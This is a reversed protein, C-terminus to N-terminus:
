ELNLAARALTIRVTPQHLHCIFPGIGQFKLGSVREFRFGVVPHNQGARRAFEAPMEHRRDIVEQNRNKVFLVSVVNPDSIEPDIEKFGPGFDLHAQLCGDAVMEQGLTRM